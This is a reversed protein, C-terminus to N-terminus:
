GGESFGRLQGGHDKDMLLAKAGPWISCVATPEVQSGAWPVRQKSILLRGALQSPGVVGCAGHVRAPSRTKKGVSLRATGM